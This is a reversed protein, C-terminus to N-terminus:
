RTESGEQALPVAARAEGDEWTRENVVAGWFRGTDLFNAGDEELRRWGPSATATRYATEDAYWHEAFGDLDLNWDPDPITHNQVYRVFGGAELTLPGHVETWYDSAEARAMDAPFHAIGLTKYPGQPGDNLVREDVPGMIATDVDIIRAGDEMVAAWQSSEMAAALADRDPYWHAVYCEFPPDPAAPGVDEPFLDLVDSQVYRLLGPITAVLPGHVERWYRAAEVKDLEPRYRLFGALKYM